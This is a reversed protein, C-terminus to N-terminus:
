QPMDEKPVRKMRDPNTYKLCWLPGFTVPSKKERPNVVVQSSRSLFPGYPSATEKV